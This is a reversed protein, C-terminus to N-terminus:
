HMEYFIYRLFSNFDKLNKQRKVIETGIVFGDAIKLVQNVHYKNRIGFGIIIRKNGIDKKIELVKSKLNLNKFDIKSGTTGKLGIFYIFDAESNKIKILKLDDEGSNATVFPIIPINLGNRYFFNHLRNPCDAIIMGRIFNYKNFDIKYVLNSYTMIYIKKNKLIEKAPIIIEDVDYKKKIVHNIAKSIIEGDAVPDNFPIGIEVFDVNSDRLIELQKYYTKIDPYGGVIYVGKM